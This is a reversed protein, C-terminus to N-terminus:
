RKRVNLLFKEAKHCFNRALTTLFQMGLTWRIRELFFIRQFKGFDKEYILHFIKPRRAIKKSRTTLVAKLTVMPSKQLFINYRVIKKLYRVSISDFLKDEPLFTKAPNEFSREVHGHSCRSSFYKEEFFV